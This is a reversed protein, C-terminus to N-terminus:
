KEQEPQIHFFTAAKATTDRAACVHFAFYATNIAAGPLFSSHILLNTHNGFFLEQQQYGSSQAHPKDCMGKPDGEPSGGRIAIVGCVVLCQWLNWTIALFEQRQLHVPQFLIQARRKSCLM